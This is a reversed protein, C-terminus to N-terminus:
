TPRARRAIFPVVSILSLIVPLGAPVFPTAVVAIVAAAGAVLQHAPDDLRPWLLALFAAPVTADLGFDHILDASSAIITAGIITSINWVTFLTLGATWYASRSTERDPQVTAVAATEDIMLQAAIARKWWSAPMAHVLALGFAVSRLNLLLGATVAAAVGGGDDLIEVAAFQASGTFVLLSFGATQWHQLGAESAAAGFALGFPIVAAALSASQARIKRRVLPEKTANRETHRM